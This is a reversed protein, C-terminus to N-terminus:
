DMRQNQFSAIETIVWHKDDGAVACGGAIVFRLDLSLCDVKSLKRPTKADDVIARAIRITSVFQVADPLRETNNQKVDHIVDRFNGVLQM